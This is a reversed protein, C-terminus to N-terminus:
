AAIFNLILETGEDYIKMFGSFPQYFVDVNAFSPDDDRRAQCLRIEPVVVGDVTQMADVLHAKIFQGNFPLTRLFARAATQVPTSNTGDLRAGTSSLIAPNYYVDVELKLHDPNVSRVQLQVGADKIEAFYAAVGNVEPTTLPVLAGGTEKAVKIVVINTQEVSAAQKVIKQATIDDPSLGTNDYTDAGPLLTGGHQYDLAKQNYWRLTHPKQAAVLDAIETRYLDFLVELTWIASAVVYTWLRWIATVSTSTLQTNLTTDSQVSAIIQAQIAAITRAM